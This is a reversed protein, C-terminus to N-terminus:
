KYGVIKYVYFNNDNNRTTATSSAFNPYTACYDARLTRNTKFILEIEVFYTDPLAFVAGTTFQTSNTSTDISIINKAPANVYSYCYVDLKKYEQPIIMIDNAYKTTGEYIVVGKPEINNNIYDQTYGNEQSTGYTNSLNAGGEIYQSTKQIQNNGIDTWGDPITAGDYEVIAGVPLTDFTKIYIDKYEGNDNYKM